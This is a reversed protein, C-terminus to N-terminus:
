VQRLEHLHRSMDHVCIFADAERTRARSDRSFNLSSARSPSNEFACRCVVKGRGMLKWSGRVGKKRLDKELLPTYDVGACWAAEAPVKPSCPRPPRTPHTAASIAATPAQISCASADEGDVELTIGLAQSYTQTLRVSGEAKSLPLSQDAFPLPHL